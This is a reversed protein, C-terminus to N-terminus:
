LVKKDFLYPHNLFLQFDSLSTLFIILFFIEINIPLWNTVM